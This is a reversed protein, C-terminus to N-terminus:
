FAFKINGNTIDAAPIRTHMTVEKKAVLKIATVLLVLISLVKFHCNIIEETIRVGTMIRKLKNKIGVLKFRPSFYIESLAFTYTIIQAKDPSHAPNIM